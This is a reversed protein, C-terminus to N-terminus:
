EKCILRPKQRDCLDQVQKYVAPGEISLLPTALPEVDDIDEGAQSQTEETDQYQNKQKKYPLLYRDDDPYHQKHYVAAPVIPPIPDAQDKPFHPYSFELHDSM